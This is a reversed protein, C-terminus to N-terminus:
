DDDSVTTLKQYVELQSQDVSIHVKNNFTLLNVPLHEEIADRLMSNIAVELRLLGELIVKQKDNM